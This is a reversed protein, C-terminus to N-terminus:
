HKRTAHYVFALDMRRELLLVGLTNEGHVKIKSPFLAWMLTHVGRSHITESTQPCFKAYSRDEIVLFSHSVMFFIISGGCKDVIQRDYYFIYIYKLFM